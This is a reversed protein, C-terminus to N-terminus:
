LRPKKGESRNQAETAASGKSGTGQVDIVVPTNISSNALHSSPRKKSIPSKTPSHQKLFEVDNFIVQAGGGSTPVVDGKFIKTEVDGDTDADQSILCYKSAKANTVDRADNLKTVSKRSVYYPQFITGLPVPNPARHELWREGTSRSRRHRPNAVAIGRAARPTYLVGNAPPASTQSSVPTALEDVSNSRAVKKVPTEGKIIESVLRLREDKDRMEEQLKNKQQQLKLELERSMKESEVAIKSNYKKRQREKEMEKQNLQQTKQNLQTQLDRVREELTRNRRNLDDISSEYIVIKNEMAKIKQRSQSLVGKISTNEAKFAANEKEIRLMNMRFRDLRADFDECLSKRKGIRMELLKILKQIIENSEPDDIKMEPFNPGLSYVLGLDVDIKPVDKHRKEIDNMAMKFLQNAKRRGPTLGADIKVPTPRAIQVDQTMEAFKMVQATEDYDEARPNVCVIMRVQGEGDFYNKFLHTVKSERYPVKKNNGTMQNERLIELCTRLTMLSNNINGAERLRQGTNGTRNTRESGALDVLSLQSVIIANRDQVVTEGHNDIPAQVLRITFVSHSRSSEANLITHGVRKRKQGIQFVELAEEMTKVETETVGHVFMNHNADERVMKSQLTRHVSSEELLDYVCNNYVEVYTIFVSYINDEDVGSLESPEVSAKSAIEPDTDKRKMRNMRSHLEAQRELMADAESLIDFGNLRDPKFIFKKAQYDAITRFLADLCRPMIGRHQIDGTMTYTKGSGTVGYTFLLGNKGRILGEVLPQAVTSYVEHQTDSAEFVHKFMYQTEKLTSIKFNIAIEPPTLVVTNHATVRLCSLDSECPLPRVRCYVQVPDSPLNNGSNGRTQLPAQRPLVKIPTKQRMTKM